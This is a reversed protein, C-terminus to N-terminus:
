GTRVRSRRIEFNGPQQRTESTHCQATSVGIRVLLPRFTGASRAAQLFLRLLRSARSLGAQMAGNLTVKRTAFLSHFRVKTNSIVADPEARPWGTALKSRWSKVCSQRKLRLLESCNTDCCAKYVVSLLLNICLRSAITYLVVYPVLFPVFALALTRHRIPFSLSALSVSIRHFGNSATVSLRRHILRSSFLNSCQLFPSQRHFFLFSYSCDTNRHWRASAASILAISQM